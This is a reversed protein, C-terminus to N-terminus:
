VPCSVDMSFPNAPNGLFIWKNIDTFTMGTPPIDSDYLDAPGVGGSATSWIRFADGDPPAYAVWGTIADITIGDNGPDFSTVGIGEYVDTPASNYTGVYNPPIPGTGIAIAFGSQCPTIFCDDCPKTIPIESINVGEPKDDFLVNLVDFNIFFSFMEKTLADNTFVQADLDDQMNAKAVSASSAGAILCIDIGELWAILEDLADVFADISVAVLALIATVLGIVLAFPIPTLLLTGLLTALIGSSFGAANVSRLQTLDNIWRQLIYNALGCRYLEYEDRDVYGSPFNTGTDEFTSAPQEYVGSGGTGACDCGSQNGIAFTVSNALALIANSLDELCGMTCFDGIQNREFIELGVAQVDTITGTTIDWFRGRKPTTIFGLLIAQWQQSAPWEIVNCCWSVGDWDSPIPMPM